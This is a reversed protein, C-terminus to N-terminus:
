LLKKFINSLTNDLKLFDEEALEKYEKPVRSNHLLIIGKSTNLIYESYDNELYFKKFIIKDKAFMRNTDEIKWKELSSMEYEPMVHYESVSLSLFEKTNTNDLLPNLLGNGLSNWAKTNNIYEKNFIRIIERLPKCTHNLIRYWKLRQHIAKEWLFLKQADPKAYIFGLHKRFMVFDSDINNIINEFNNSTIITDLDLWIGGYKKLIACRIADAQKALSYDSYLTKDFYNKGLYKDINKYDLIIIEYDPLFKKWTEVCLDLYGPINESPEWFTFIRKKM